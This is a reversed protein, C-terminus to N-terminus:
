GAAAMGRRERSLKLLPDVGRHRSVGGGGGGRLRGPEGPRNDKRCRSVSWRRPSTLRALTLVPELPLLGWVLRVVWADTIATIALTFTVGANHTSATISQDRRIAVHGGVRGTRV